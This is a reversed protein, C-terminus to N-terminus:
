FLSKVHFYPIQRLSGYSFNYGNSWPGTRFNHTHNTKTILFALRVEDNVNLSRICKVHNTAAGASLNEHYQLNLAIDDWTNTNHAKRQLKIDFGIFTGASAVFGISAELEYIGTEQCLFYAYDGEGIVPESAGREGDQELPRENASTTGVYFMAPVSQALSTNIRIINATDYNYGFYTRKKPSGSKNWFKTDTTIQAAVIYKPASSAVPPAVWGYFPASTRAALYFGHIKDNNSPTPVGGSPAAWDFTALNNVTSKTLVYGDNIGARPSVLNNNIIRGNLKSSAALNVGFSGVVNGNQNGLEAEGFGGEITIVKTKEDQLDNAITVGDGIFQLM